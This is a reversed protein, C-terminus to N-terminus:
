MCEISFLFSCLFLGLCVDLDNDEILEKMDYFPTPDAFHSPDSPVWSQLATVQKAVDSLDKGFVNGDGILIECQRNLAKTDSFNRVTENLTQCDEESLGTIDRLSTELQTPDSSERKKMLRRLSKTVNWSNQESLNQDNSHVLVDHMDIKEQLARRDRQRKALIEKAHATKRANGSGHLAWLESYWQSCECGERPDERQSALVKRWSEDEELACVRMTEELKKTNLLRQRAHPVRNLGWEDLDDFTPLAGTFVIWIM